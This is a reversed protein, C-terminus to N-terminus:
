EIRLKKVADSEYVSAGRGAAGAGVVKMAGIGMGLAHAKALSADRLASM